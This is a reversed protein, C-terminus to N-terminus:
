SRVTRDVNLRSTSSSQTTRSSRRDIASNRGSGYHRETRRVTWGDTQGARTRTTEDEPTSYVGEEVAVVDREAFAGLVGYLM